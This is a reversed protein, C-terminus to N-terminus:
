RVLGSESMATVLRHSLTEWLSPINTSERNVSYHTDSINQASIFYGLGHSFETGAAGHQIWDSVMCFGRSMGASGRSSHKEYAGNSETPILVNIRKSEKSPKTVM